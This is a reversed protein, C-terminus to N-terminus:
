LKHSLIGESKLKQLAIECFNGYFHISIAKKLKYLGICVVLVVIRCAKRRHKALLIKLRMYVFRKLSFPLIEREVRATDLVPIAIKTPKAKLFRLRAYLHSYVLDTFLFFGSFFLDFLNYMVKDFEVLM